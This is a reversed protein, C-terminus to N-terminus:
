PVSREPSRRTMLVTGVHGRADHRRRCPALAVVSLGTVTWWMDDVLARCKLEAGRQTSVLLTFSGDTRRNMPVPVWATFNGAVSATTATCSPQLRLEVQTTDRQHDHRDIKTPSRLANM